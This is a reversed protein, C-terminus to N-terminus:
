ILKNIINYTTNLISKYNVEEFIFSNGISNYPSAKPAEKCELVLM